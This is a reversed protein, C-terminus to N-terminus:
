KYLSVNPVLPTRSTALFSIGLLTEILFESLLHVKDTSIENLSELAKENTAPFPALSKQLRKVVNKAVNLQQQLTICEQYACLITQDTSNNLGLKNREKGKPLYYSIHDISSLEPKLLPELLRRLKTCALQYRCGIDEVLYSLVTLHTQIKVPNLISIDATINAECSVDSPLVTTHGYFLGIPIRCKTTGM